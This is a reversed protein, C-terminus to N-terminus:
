EPTRRQRPPFRTTVNVRNWLNIAGILWLLSAIEEDTFQDRLEDWIREAGAGGTLRTVADTLALAARERPTFCGADRWGGLLDLQEQTVGAERGLRTHMELCFACGNVQSARARVLERLAPELPGGNLHEELARMARHSGRDMAYPNLLAV